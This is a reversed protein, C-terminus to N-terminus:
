KAPATDLKRNLIMQQVISALANVLMYITLGAPLTIMMAGFILPMFQMMRQQAPDTATTPTMKQQIYMTAALLVPTVYFPDKSSLDNIWLAFPAHYLEISSYLVRYLAFFIPMQIIMPLCGAMPNYGQSRMMVLMERNLAERDDKHKDRLKQLQPQLKAMKKMSKMSKYTLPYTVTKLLLTLLIIAVGYNQVFQYLWKLIKLLPYAFITFWGFDVTHDLSPEVRRLIDLEKPGFYTRLPISITKGTLPYALSIRGAYPGAPQILGTAEIASKSVVAMLFYRNTAGIYKVSTPIAKQSIQDGLAQREISQNTWYVLHRDQGEPDKEQSQSTLSVFAHKPVQNKFEATVQVDIYPQQDSTQFERTLKVQNDEYTWLVGTPTKSLKGQVDHLYSFNPDDFALTIGGNEHTVSRMDVAAADSSIGLRYSKLNWGVFFSSSDGISANGIETPITLKQEPLRSQPQKSDHAQTTGQVLPQSQGVTGAPPNTKVQSQTQNQSSFRPEVYLKQWAMFILFCLTM